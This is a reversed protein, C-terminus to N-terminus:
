RVNDDHLAYAVAADPTLQRGDTWAAAFREDGLTQRVPPLYLDQTVRESPWLASGSSQL